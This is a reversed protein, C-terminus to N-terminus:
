RRGVRQLRRCRLRSGARARPVVRARERVPQLALVRQKLDVPLVSWLYLAAQIEQEARALREPLTPETRLRHMLAAMEAMAAARAENGKPPMNSAQDWGAISQLHGLRHLRTWTASLDDYTPTASMTSM